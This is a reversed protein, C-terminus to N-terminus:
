PQTTNFQTLLFVLFLVALILLVLGVLPNGSKEVGAITYTLPARGGSSSPALIQNVSDIHHRLAPQCKSLQALMSAASRQSEPGASVLNRALAAAREHQGARIALVMQLETLRPGLSHTTDITQLRGVEAEAENLSGKLAFKAARVVDDDLWLTM